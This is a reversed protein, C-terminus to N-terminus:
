FVLQEESPVVRGADICVAQFIYPEEKGSVRRFLLGTAKHYAMDVHGSDTDLLMFWPGVDPVSDVAELDYANLRDNHRVVPGLIRAWGRSRFVATTAIDVVPRPMDVSAAGAAFVPLSAAAVTAGLGTLLDRRDLTM